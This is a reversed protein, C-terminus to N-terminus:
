RRVQMWSDMKRRYDDYTFGNASMSSMMYHSRCMSSGRPVTPIEHPLVSVIMQVNETTYPVTHSNSYSGPRTMALRMRVEECMIIVDHVPTKCISCIEKRHICM